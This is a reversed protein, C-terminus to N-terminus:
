RTHVAAFAAYAPADFLVFWVTRVPPAASEAVTGLAIRAADDLPWRYVGTSIAPFAVTEAGLEAAVRLSSRYCQALLGGRDEDASWVPGVTHIVHRAALRGATTAVAEGTALGRGWHSARLARCEALIEPGGRRHIAGDVGGGGLLSSNAANVIADVSMETIDGRVLRIETM